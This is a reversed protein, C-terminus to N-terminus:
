VSRKKENQSSVRPILGKISSIFGVIFVINITVM